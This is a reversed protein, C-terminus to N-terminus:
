RSATSVAMSALGLNTAAPGRFSAIWNVTVPQGNQVASALASRWERIVSMEEIGARLFEKSFGPNGPESAPSTATNPVAAHPSRYKSSYSHDIRRDRLTSWNEFDDSNYHYSGINSQHGDTGAFRGEDGEHLSYAARGGIVAGEGRCVQVVTVDGAENVTVKYAGTQYISFALNPTDIEFTENQDLHRVRVQITDETLQIQSGDDSLNLFSFDTNAGVRIYASGTDIEALAGAETRLKDRTTMPRNISAAVWDDSGGPEFYVAGQEYSLHAVRGPPNDDAAAQPPSFFVLTLALSLFGALKFTQNNM